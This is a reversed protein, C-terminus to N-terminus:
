SAFFVLKFRALFFVDITKRVKSYHFNNRPFPFGFKSDPIWNFIRLENSMEFLIIIDSLM